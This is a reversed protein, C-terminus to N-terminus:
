RGEQQLAPPGPEAEPRAGAPKRPVGLEERATKWISQFDDMRCFAGPPLLARLRGEHDGLRELEIGAADQLWQPATPMTAAASEIAALAADDIARSPRDALILLFSPLSADVEARHLFAREIRDIQSGTLLPALPRRLYPETAYLERDGEPYLEYM